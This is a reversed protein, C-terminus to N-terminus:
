DLKIKTSQDGDTKNSSSRTLEVMLDTGAEQEAKNGSGKARWQDFDFGSAVSLVKAIDPVRFGGYASLTLHFVRDFVNMLAGFGITQFFINPSKSWEEGFCMKVGRFYNEIIREQEVLSFVKLLGKEDNVLPAVKRVFNTNSIQGSKPSTIVAIREYFVSEPNKRLETALDHARERATDAPSKDPLRKLLDLVLSTPVGKGERNITVFQRIQSDEDLGVFAIVALEIDDGDVAAQHAGALRHQGDIV